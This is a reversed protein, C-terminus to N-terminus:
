FLKMASEKGSLEDIEIKWLKVTSLMKKTLEWEKGSYQVMIQNLGYTAEELNTIEFIRGYGIVSQYSTTWKCAISEHEITKVNIDFEFCVLNNANIYEIKKGEKATHVYLCKGDYGFSVPVLYPINDKALALRCVLSDKIIQEIDSSNTIQKDTRRM